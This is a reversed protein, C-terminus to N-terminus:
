EVIVPDYTHKFFEDVVTSYKSYDVDDGLAISNRDESEPITSKRETVYKKHKCETVSGSDSLHGIIMGNHVMRMRDDAIVYVTDNRAAMVNGEYGAKDTIVVQLNKWSGVHGRENRYNMKMERKMENKTETEIKSKM